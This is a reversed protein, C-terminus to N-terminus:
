SGGKLHHVFTSLRLVVLSRAYPTHDQHLVAIPLQGNSAAAEAQKMAEELWSPLRRRSKVEISLWEHLVDPADGRQRGTVPIRWGGLLKAIRRECGKWDKM